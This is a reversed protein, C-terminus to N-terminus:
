VYTTNNKRVAIIPRKGSNRILTKVEGCDYGKDAIVERVDDWNGIAWLQSFIKLDPRQGASLCAGRLYDGSLGVHIKTSLGKRGRGTSQPGKKKVGGFRSSSSAIHHQRDM